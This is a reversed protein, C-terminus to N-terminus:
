SKLVWSKEELKSRVSSESWIMLIVTGSLLISM